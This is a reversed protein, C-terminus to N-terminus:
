GMIRFAIKGKSYVTINGDLEVVLCIANSLYSVKAATNYKSTKSLAIGTYKIDPPRLFTNGQIIRSENDIICAGRKSFLDLLFDEEFNKVPRNGTEIMGKSPDAFKLINESDGYTIFAVKGSDSIKYAYKLLTKLTEEEVKHKSSLFEIGRNVEAPHIHWTARRHSLIRNGKYFISIKGDGKFLFLLGNTKKSAIVPKVYKESLLINFGSVKNDYSINGIFTGDSKLAFGGTFGNVEAASSILKFLSNSLNGEVKKLVNMDKSNIRVNGPLILISTCLLKSDKINYKLRSIIDLVYSLFDEGIKLEELAPALVLFISSLRFENFIKVALEQSINYKDLEFGWGSAKTLSDLLVGDRFNYSLTILNEPDIYAEGRPLLPKWNAKYSWFVPLTNTPTSYFFGVMLESSDYGFPHDPFLDRGYKELIKRVTEREKPNKLVSSNEAIPSATEPLVDAVVVNFGTNKSLYDMGPKYGVLSAFTINVQKKRDLIPKIRNNWLSTAQHGSGIFDDLLVIASERTFGSKEFNEVSIFNKNKLNNRKRYFYAVVGGGSKAIYGVPIFYIKEPSVKLFEIIKQHLNQVLVNIKKSSYYCFDPLLKKIYPQEDEQFQLLWSVIAEDKIDKDFPNRFDLM